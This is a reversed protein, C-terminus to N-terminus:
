RVTITVSRSVAIKANTADTGVVAFTYVGATTAPSGPQPTTSQGGGGGCGIAAFSLVLCLLGLHSMWRRRKAPLGLLLIAAFATGGGGLWSLKQDFPSGFIANSAAKTHITLISTGNGGATLTLSTPALSCTPLSQAGTPSSILACTLNMTGSYTSGALLTANGTSSGGASVTAPAPVAIVVPVVAVDIHGSGIGYMADGSYNVTLSNAGAALTGAPISLTAAGSTLPQRTTFTGYLLNVVGTPTPQGSGGAVQVLVSVEQKDTITLASAVATITASATGISSTVTVVASQAAATYTGSSQELRGITAIPPVGEVEFSLAVAIACLFSRLGCCRDDFGSFQSPQLFAAGTCHTSLLWGGESIEGFTKELPNFVRLAQSRVSLAVVM